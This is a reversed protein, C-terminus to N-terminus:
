HGASTAWYPAAVHCLHSGSTLHTPSVHTLHVLSTSSRPVVTNLHDLSTSNRPRRERERIKYIETQPRWNEGMLIETELNYGSLNRISDWGKMLRNKKDSKIKIAESTWFNYFNWSFDRFEHHDGRYNKIRMKSKDGQSLFEGMIFGKRIM